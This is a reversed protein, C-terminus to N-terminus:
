ATGDGERAEFVGELRAVIAAAVAAADVDYDNRELRERIKDIHMARVTM